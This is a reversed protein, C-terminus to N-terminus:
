GPDKQLSEAISILAYAMAFHVPFKIVSSPDAEAMRRKAEQLHDIETM